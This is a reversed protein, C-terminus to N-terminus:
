EPISFGTKKEIEAFTLREPQIEYPIGTLRSRIDAQDEQTVHDLLYILVRDQAQKAVFNPLCFVGFDGLPVWFYDERFREYLEKMWIPEAQNPNM